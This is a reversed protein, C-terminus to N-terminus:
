IGGFFDSVGQLPGPVSYLSFFYKWFGIFTVAMLGVVFWNLLTPKVHSFDLDIDM